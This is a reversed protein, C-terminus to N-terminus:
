MPLPPPLPFLGPSLSILSPPLLCTVARSSKRIPPLLLLLRRDEDLPERSRRRDRDRERRSRRGRESERRRWRSRDRERSGCLSLSQPLIISSLPFGSLTRTFFPSFTISTLALSLLHYVNTM